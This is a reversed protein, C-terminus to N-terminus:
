KATSSSRSTSASVPGPCSSAGTFSLTDVLTPYQQLQLAKPANEFPLIISIINYVALVLQDSVECIEKSLKRKPKSNSHGVVLRGLITTKPKQCEVIITNAREFAQRLKELAFGMAPDKVKEMHVLELVHSVSNVREGLETCEEINQRVTGMAENIQQAVNSTEHVLSRLQAAPSPQTIDSFVVEIPREPNPISSPPPSVYETGKSLSAVMPNIRLSHATLESRQSALIAVAVDINTNSIVQDMKSLQKTMNGAQLYVCMISRNEQCYAILVRARVLTENLAETAKSIAQNKMLEERGKLLSLTLNIRQVRKKIDLCDEKNQRVTVVADNINSVLSTIGMVFGVAESVVGVAEAM